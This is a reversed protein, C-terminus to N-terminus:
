ADATTWVKLTDDAEEIAEVLKDLSEGVEDDLEELPELPAYVLESSLLERCVGPAGLASTLKHLTQQPCKFQM